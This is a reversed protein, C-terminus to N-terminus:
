SSAKPAPISACPDARTHAKVVHSSDYMGAKEAATESSAEIYGHVQVGAQQSTPLWAPVGLDRRVHGNGALLVVGRDANDTVIKAMIVDRAVQARVMSPVINDPMKGCHGGEIAARQGDVIATPLPQDLKYSSITNKDIVAAYGERMVRAADARSLNAALLPLKYDIALQIVPRYHPWEWRKNGVRAIICDADTCTTQVQTLEAQNERDFQEMAIAPRWGAVVLKKLDVYRQAHGEPNDHVEGLLLINSSVPKEPQTACASLLSATALAAAVSTFRTLNRM